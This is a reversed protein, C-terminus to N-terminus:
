KEKKYEEMEELHVILILNLFKVTLNTAAEGLKREVANM